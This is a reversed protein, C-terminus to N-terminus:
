KKEQSNGLCYLYNEGRLILAEGIPVPSASFRDDLRNLGLVQPEPGHSMVLTAGSRDVVYIRDDAAVPSAFM